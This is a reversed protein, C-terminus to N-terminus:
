KTNLIFGFIAEITTHLHGQQSYGSRKRPKFSHDGDELIQLKVAKSFSFQALEEATGMNDREGQLILTPLPIEALHSGKLKEPKAPPHFPFGLCIIGCIDPDLDEEMALLSAMRGGMSKGGIFLKGHHPVTAIQQRFACLLKDARDPPRRKGDERRKLMYPFEFRFVQVGKDALGEAVQTMFEHDMGAGAGHAFIFSHEANKPGNVLM